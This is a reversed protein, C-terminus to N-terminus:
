DIRDVYSSEGPSKGSPGTTLVGQQAESAPPALEVGLCPALYSEVYWTACGFSLLAGWAGWCGTGQWCCYCCFAARSVLRLHAKRGPLRATSPM